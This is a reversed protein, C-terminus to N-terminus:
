PHAGALAGRLDALVGHMWQQYSLGAPETESVGVLAVGSSRAIRLLRQTTGSSTQRNYIMLRVARARLSAEFAGTERAGPETDNMIAMEFAVNQMRLGIADTLDNAVPETATVPAGAYRSHLQAIDQQLPQLSQLFVALRQAYSSADAPDLQALQGALARAVSPMTEPDYWLHPNADPGERRMLGAVRLTRRAHRGHTVLLREIWPDYNLGNYILVNADAVVRATAADPEFLHPDADPNQLISVVQVAPGAIQRAIDGYFNEAAVVLLRSPGAAAAHASGTGALLLLVAAAAPAGHVARSLLTVLIEKPLCMPLRM